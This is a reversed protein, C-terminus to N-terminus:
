RPTGAVPSGMLKRPVVTARRSFPFITSSNAAVSFIPATINPNVEHSSCTPQRGFSQAPLADCPWSPSASGDRTEPCPRSQPGRPRRHKRSTTQSSAPFPEQQTIPPRAATPHPEPPHTPSRSQGAPRPHRPLRPMRAPGTDTPHSRSWVMAPPRDLPRDQSMSNLGTTSLQFRTQVSTTMGQSSRRRGIVM